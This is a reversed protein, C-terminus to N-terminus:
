WLTYWIAMFYVWQDYHMYVLHGYFIGFPQLIVISYILINLELASWFMGWKPNKTHFKVM